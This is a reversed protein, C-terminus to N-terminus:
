PQLVMLSNLFGNGGINGLVAKVGEGSSWDMVAAVFEEDKYNIARRARAALPLETKAAASVTTAVGPGIGAGMACTIQTAMQGTGGGGRHILVLDGSGVGRHEM